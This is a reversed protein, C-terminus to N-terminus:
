TLASIFAALKQEYTERDSPSLEASVFGLAAKGKLGTLAEINASVVEKAAGGATFFYAAQRFEGKFKEIYTISPSSATSGWVPTGLIVLDYDAPNKDPEAIPMPKKKIADMVLTILGFLGSINKGPIIEEIDANLHAAIDQAVKKTRGTRSYYVVLAMNTNEM